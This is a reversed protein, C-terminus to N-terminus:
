ASYSPGDVQVVFAVTADALTLSEMWGLQQPVADPRKALAADKLVSSDQVGAFSAAPNKHIRWMDELCFPLSKRCPGIIHSSLREQTANLQKKPQFLSNLIGSCVTFCCVVFPSPLCDRISLM